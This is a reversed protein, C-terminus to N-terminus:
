AIRRVAKADEVSGTAAAISRDSPASVVAGIDEAEKDCPKFLGDECSWEMVWRGTRGHRNRMLETAFVPSSRNEDKEPSRAARVRWRTEATSIQPKANFRLLFATVGKRASALTLRRSVVMDLIKPDGPMEIVVAGLAACSLADSAARLVDAANALRLLLLRAPDLGLELLGTAALDGFEIASFGQRIWLVRKDAAVRFSLTAAFGTAAAEDGGEAFIEHLVGRPLGGNFCADVKDYGLPVRAHTEPDELELRALSTRLATIKAATVAIANKEVRKLCMDSLPCSACLARFYTCTKQGLGKLYWYLEYLDDADFGDAAAMVADFVAITNSAPSVFGFRSMVRQVHTDVVFARKRLTSFNLTAAAIKRGVGHIQELWFLAAEVSHDALFELDISGARARIKRLALKLDAAKNESFDVGTLAAEVDGVPADAIDDWSRYRWNLRTSVEDYTRSGIFAYVFQSTPDLRQEDRISGFAVRLRDRVSRLDAQQRSFLFPQMSAFYFLFLVFTL